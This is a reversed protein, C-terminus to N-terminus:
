RLVRLISCTLELLTDFYELRRVGLWLDNSADSAACTPSMRSHHQSLGSLAPGLWRLASRRCVSVAGVQLGSARM